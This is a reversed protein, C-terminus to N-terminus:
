DTRIISDFRQGDGPRRAFRLDEMVNAAVGFVCEDFAARKLCIARIFLSGAANVRPPRTERGHSNRMVRTVLGLRSAEAVLNGALARLAARRTLKSM